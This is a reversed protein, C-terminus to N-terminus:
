KMVLLVDTWAKIQALASTGATRWQASLLKVLWWTPWPGRGQVVQRSLVVLLLLSQAAALGHRQLQV